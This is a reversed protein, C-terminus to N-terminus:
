CCSKLHKILIETSVVIEELHRAMGVLRDLKRLSAAQPMANITASHIHILEMVKDLMARNEKTLRLLDSPLTPQIQIPATAKTSYTALSTPFSSRYQSRLRLRKTDISEGSNPVGLYLNVTM